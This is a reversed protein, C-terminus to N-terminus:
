KKGGRFPNITVILKGNQETVIESTGANYIRRVVGGPMTVERYKGYQIISQIFDPALSRGAVPIGEKNCMEGALPGLGSPRMYNVAHKSYLRKGIKAYEKGNLTVKPYNKWTSWLIKTTKPKLTQVFKASAYKLGQYTLKIAKGGCYTLILDSGASTVIEEVSGGDAYAAYGPVM